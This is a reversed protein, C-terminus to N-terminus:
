RYLEGVWTALEIKLDNLCVTGNSVEKDHLSSFPVLLRSSKSLDSERRMM